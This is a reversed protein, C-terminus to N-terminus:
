APPRRGREWRGGNGSLTTKGGRFLGNRATVYHSMYKLVQPFGMTPTRILRGEGINEPFWEGVVGRTGWPSLRRLSPGTIRSWRGAGRGRSGRGASGGEVLAPRCTFLGELHHGECSVSTWAQSGGLANGGGGRTISLETVCRGEADCV